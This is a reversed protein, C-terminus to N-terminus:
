VALSGLRLMVSSRRKYFCSLGAKVLSIFVALSPEFVKVSTVAGLDQADALEAMGTYIKIRGCSQSLPLSLIRQLARRPAKYHRLLSLPADHLVNIRVIVRLEAADGVAAAVVAADAPLDVHILVRKGGVTLDAALHSRAKGPANSRVAVSRVKDKALVLAAREQILSIEAVEDQVAPLSHQWIQM